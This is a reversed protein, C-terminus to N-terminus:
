NSILDNLAGSTMLEDYTHRTITSAPRRGAMRDLITQWSRGPAEQQTLLRYFM